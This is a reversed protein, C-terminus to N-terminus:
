VLGVNQIRSLAPLLLRSAFALVPVAALPYIQWPGFDYHETTAAAALLLLGAAIGTLGHRTSSTNRTRPLRVILDGAVWWLLALALHFVLPLDARVALAQGTSYLHLESALALGAIVLPAFTRGPRSKRKGGVAFLAQVTMTSVLVAVSLAMPVPSGSLMWATFSAALLAAIAVPLLNM